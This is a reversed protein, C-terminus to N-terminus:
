TSVTLPEGQKPVVTRARVYAESVRECTGAHQEDLQYGPKKSTM